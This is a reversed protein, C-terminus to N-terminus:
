LTALLRAVVVALLATYVATAALGWVLLKLRQETVLM